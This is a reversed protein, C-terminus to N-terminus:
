GKQFDGPGFKAPWSPFPKLDVDLDTQYNFNSSVINEELAELTQNGDDNVLVRPLSEAARSFLQGILDTSEFARFRDAAAHDVDNPFLIKYLDYGLLITGSNTLSSEYSSLNTM